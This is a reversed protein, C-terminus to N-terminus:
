WATTMSSELDQNLGFKGSLEVVANPPRIHYHVSGHVDGFIAKSSESLSIGDYARKLSSAHAHNLQIYKEASSDSQIDLEELIEPEM